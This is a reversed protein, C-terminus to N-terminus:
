NNAGGVTHTHTNTNMYIDADSLAAASNFALKLLHKVSTHHCCMSKAHTPTNYMCLAYQLTKFPHFFYISFQIFHKFSKSQVANKKDAKSFARAQPQFHSLLPFPLTFSFFIFSCVQTRFKLSKGATWYSLTENERKQMEKQSPHFLKDFHKWQMIVCAGRPDGFFVSSLVNQIYANQYRPKRKCHLAPHHMDKPLHLVVWIVSIVKSNSPKQWNQAILYVLLLWISM